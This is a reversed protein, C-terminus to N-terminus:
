NNLYSLFIHLPPHTKLDDAGVKSPVALCFAIKTLNWAAKRYCSLLSGVGRNHRFLRHTGLSCLAPTDCGGCSLRHHARRVATPDLDATRAHEDFRIPVFASARAGQFKCSVFSCRGIIYRPVAEQGPGDPPRSVQAPGWWGFHNAQLPLTGL